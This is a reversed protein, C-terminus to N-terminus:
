EIRNQSGRRIRDGERWEKGTRGEMATGEHQRAKNQRAWEKVKTQNGARWQETRNDQIKRDWVGDDNRDQEGNGQGM